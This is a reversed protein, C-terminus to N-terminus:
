RWGGQVMSLKTAQVEQLNGLVQGDCVLLTIVFKRSPNKGNFDFCLDGSEDLYIIMKYINHLTYVRGRQKGDCREFVARDCEFFRAVLEVGTKGDEVSEALGDLLASLERAFGGIERWDIFRRARKLGTLKSKFRKVKEKPTAVLREVFEDAKDYHSAMELLSDALKEPGLAILKNRIKTSM